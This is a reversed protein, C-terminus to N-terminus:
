PEAARIRSTSIRRPGPSPLSRADARARSTANKRLARARSTGARWALASALIEERPYWKFPLQVLDAEHGGRKLERVLGAAHREAGGSAFPVQATCVVVRAM